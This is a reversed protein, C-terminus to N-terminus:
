IVCVKPRSRSASTEKHVLERSALLNDKVTAITSTSVIARQETPSARSVKPQVILANIRPSDSTLEPQRDSADQISKNIERILDLLVVTEM